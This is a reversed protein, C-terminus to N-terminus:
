QGSQADSKSEPRNRVPDHPPWRTPERSRSLGRLRAPGDIGPGVGSRLAPLEHRRRSARSLTGQHFLLLWRGQERVWVSSRLVRRGLPDGVWTVLVADPGLRTTEVDRAPVLNGTGGTAQSISVRDWVRGSAGLERFQPHLLSLLRAPDNRVHPRLLLLELEVVQALDDEM